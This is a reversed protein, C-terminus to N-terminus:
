ASNSFSAWSWFLLSVAIVKGDVDFLTAMRNLVQNGGHGNV